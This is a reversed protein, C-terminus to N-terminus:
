KLAHVLRDIFPTLAFIRAIHKREDLTVGATLRALAEEVAGDDLAGKWGWREGVGEITAPNTSLVPCGSALAELVVKDLSDTASLHLLLDNTAYLAPLKVHPLASKFSVRGQLGLSIVERMVDADYAADTKPGVWALTARPERKLIQAFFAITERVRKRPMVRGIALISFRDNPRPPRVVTGFADDVAHGIARVKPSVVPFAHPTATLTVDALRIAIKLAASASGHTYWLATRVHRIAWLLWGVILWPPTMHVLVADSQDKAIVSWFRTLRSFRSGGGICTIKIGEIKEAHDALCIVHLSEVDQHARIAELWAVFFGLLPHTRDVAQTVVLLKM